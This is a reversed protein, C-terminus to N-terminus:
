VRGETATVQEVLTELDPIEFTPEATLTVDAVHDRRLYASDIGARKAAVVDKESDGVYLADDTDLDALAAEVYDPEPKRAAAGSLTPRRGRVTEFEPLDHFALLFEVTAHQNNSVVGISCDLREVAAVDDYVPKGGARVHTQQALSATLERYHWFSEPDIGHERATGAPVDDEAVSRRAVSREIDVGFADFADVVADVLVATDTPEVLVGDCDFVVADYADTM